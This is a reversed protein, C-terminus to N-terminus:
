IEYIGDDQMFQIMAYRTVLKRQLGNTRKYKRSSKAEKSRLRKINLNQRREIECRILRNFFCHKQRLADDISYFAFIFLYYIFKFSLNSAHARTGSVSFTNMLIYYCCCGFYFKSLITKDIQIRDSTSQIRHQIYDQMPVDILRFVNFAFQSIIQKGSSGGNLMTISEICRDTRTNYICLQCVIHNPKIAVIWFAVDKNKQNIKVFQLSYLM